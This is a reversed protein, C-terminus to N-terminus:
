LKLINSIMKKAKNEEELNSGVFSSFQYYVLDFFSMFFVAIFLYLGEVCFQDIFIEFM